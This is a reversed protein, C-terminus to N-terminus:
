TRVRLPIQAILPDLVRYQQRTANYLQVGLPARITLLLTYKLADAVSVLAGNDRALYNITLQPEFLGSARMRTSARVITEWKGEERLLAEHRVRNSARTVPASSPQSGLRLLEVARKADDDNSLNLTISRGTRPDSFRYRRAHPRFAMELGCKAYDVPDTPDTPTTYTLTWRLEVTRGQVVQMPIPFPLSVSETRDITDEYLVTVEEPGRQWLSDYREPFRGYGVEDLGTADGGPEAFHVAFARLNDLTARAEGLAGALAALGHAVAPSAFSTGASGYLLGGPGIGRFPEGNQVGGFLVGAPQLRAGARGPGVASYSCRQWPTQPARCDCAGVGLGNIMDAPVQIRNLDAQADREGNNGVASIFLIGREAAISDLTATWVHPEGDIDVSLDPGLSLNVIPYDHATLTEEIRELIWCLDVDWADDGPIPLVRFHDVTVPPTALADGPSVAGYLLASTVLTGHAVFEPNEPESTLDVASTFPALYGNNSDLGGDFVAVRLDSQPRQGSPRAPAAEGTAAVRLPTPPIPRVAPMPRIARLPNFRAVVDAADAPLRVPVFTLGGVRRRYQQAVDGGLYRVYDVWKRFVEEQEEDTERGIAAIAPHLVAEWTPIKGVERDPRSRVVEDLEPLRLETFQRLRDRAAALRGRQGVEGSLLGAVRQLSREDGAVLYTKTQRAESERAPTVHEAM